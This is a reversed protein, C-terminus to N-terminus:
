SLPSDAIQKKNQPKGLCLQTSIFIVITNLDNKSTKLNIRKTYQEFQSQGGVYKEFFIKYPKPMFFFFSVVVHFSFIEM